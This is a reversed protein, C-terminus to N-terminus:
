AVSAQVLCKWYIKGKQLLGNPRLYVRFIKEIQGKLKFPIKAVNAQTGVAQYL